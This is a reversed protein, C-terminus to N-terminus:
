SPKFNDKDIDYKRMKEYLTKRPTGLTDVTANISGNCELLAKEILSKEFWEVREHLTMSKNIAPIGILQDLELGSAAGMLVFREAANKLERVNGPWDKLVLQQVQEPDLTDLECEHRAAAIIAFHHFLLPIDEVREHLAPLTLTIVNLRYYLDERFNGEEAAQKLDIKTAAIVRVDIKVRRNAGLPEVEREQLVRLLKVQLDIPMSEIEDLFVTGKNAFEFKGVRAKSAGTFAGAAHGFLESEIIQEPLAGCNIAVFPAERRESIEHLNRAVLEKGTGTEGFLLIDAQTDALHAVQNRLQQIAVSKGVVRQGPANQLALEMKLNRNELILRRKELSKRIVEILNDPAFPKELFDFAGDRMAQVATAIDGQGTILIIPIEPDIEKACQLLELGSLGPMKIDSVIVGTLEADIKALASEADGFSDVEFGEMQLSQVTSKRIFKDDDIFVIRAEIDSM